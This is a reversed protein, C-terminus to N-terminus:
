TPSVNQPYLRAIAQGKERMASILESPSEVIVDIGLSLLRAAYFDISSSPISAEIIGGGSPDAEIRGFLTALEFSKMGGESVRARLELM